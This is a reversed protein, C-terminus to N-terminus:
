PKVIEWLCKYTRPLGASAYGNRYDYIVNTTWYYNKISVRDGYHLQDGGSGELKKIIWYSQKGYDTTSLGVNGTATEYLISSGDKIRWPVDNRANKNKLSSNQIQFVAAKAGLTVYDNRNPGLYKGAGVLKFKVRAFGKADVKVPPGSSSENRGFSAGGLPLDRPTTIIQLEGNSRVYVGGGWRFKGVEGKLTVYTLHELTAASNKDFSIRGLAFTHHADSYNRSSGLSFTYISGSKSEYVLNLGAEANRVLLKKGNTYNQKTFKCDTDTLPKGNSKFLNGNKDYVYHCRHQHHYVLGVTEAGSDLRLHYLPTATGDSFDFFEIKKAAVTSVAVINGCAQAGGPYSKSYDFFPFTHTKKYVAGSTSVELFHGYSSWSEFVTKGSNHTLLWKGDPLIAMGQIHTQALSSIGGSIPDKWANNKLANMRSGVDPCANSIDNREYPAAESGNPVALTVATMLCPALNRVFRPIRNRVRNTKSKYKEQTGDSIKSQKEM